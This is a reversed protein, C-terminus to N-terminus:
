GVMPIKSFYKLFLLKYEIGITKGVGRGNEKHFFGIMQCLFKM